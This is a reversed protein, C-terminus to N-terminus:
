QVKDMVGLDLYFASKHSAYYPENLIFLDIHFTEVPPYQSSEVVASVLGYSVLEVHSSSVDLRGKDEELDDKM